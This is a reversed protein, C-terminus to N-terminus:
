AQVIFRSELETIEISADMDLQGETPPTTYSVFCGTFPGIADIFVPERTQAAVTYTLKSGGAGQPDDFNAAVVEITVSQDCGNHVDFLAWQDTRGRCDLLRIARHAVSDRIAEKDFFTAIRTAM